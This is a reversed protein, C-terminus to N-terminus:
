HGAKSGNAQNFDQAVANGSITTKLHDEEDDGHQGREPPPVKNQWLENCRGVRHGAEGCICCPIAEM